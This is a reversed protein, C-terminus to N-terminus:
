IGYSAPDIPLGPVGYTKMLRNYLTDDLLDAACYRESVRFTPHTGNQDCWDNYADELRDLRQIALLMRPDRVYGLADYCQAEILRNTFGSCLLPLRDM